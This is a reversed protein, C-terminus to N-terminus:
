SATKGARVWAMVCLMIIAAEWIFTQATFTPVLHPGPWCWVWQGSKADLCLADHFRHFNLVNAITCLVFLSPIWLRRNYMIILAVVM